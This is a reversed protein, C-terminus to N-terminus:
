NHVAAPLHEVFRLACGSMLSGVHVGSTYYLKKKKKKKEGLFVIKYQILGHLTQSQSLVNHLMIMSDTSEILLSPGSEGM